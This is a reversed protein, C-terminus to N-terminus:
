RADAAIWREVQGALALNGKAACLRMAERAHATAASRDGLSAMAHSADIFAEAAVMINAKPPGSVMELLAEVRAAAGPAGAAADIRARAGAIRSRTAGVPHREAAALPALADGYRGQNVLVEALRCSVFSHLGQDGM